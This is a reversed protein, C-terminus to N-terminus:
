YVSETGTSGTITENNGALMLDESYFHGSIFVFNTPESPAVSYEIYVFQGQKYVKVDKYAVIVKEDNVKKELITVVTNYITQLLGIPTKRGVLMPEVANRIDKNIHDAIVGVARETRLVDSEQSTTLDQVCKVSSTGTANEAICFQFTVVGAALLTPIDNQPDIERELKSMRFADRTATEGDPLFACRGAFQAALIYSPYLELQNEENLDYFGPYIFQCRDDALARAKQAAENVSLGVQAGCMMRREKGFTTSSMSTVHEQCETILFDDSTLPVVYQIPYVSLMDYFKVWSNPVKGATGGSLSVFPTNEITGMEANYITGVQILESGNELAVKINALTDTVNFEELISQKMVYTLDNVTCTQNCYNSYSVSYNEYGQLHRVLGRISKFTNANLDIDLDVIAASESEGIYTQLKIANGLGDTIISIAAYKQDGTYKISFAAGLNDFTEYSDTNADFVTLKKTNKVTGNEIKVQIKNADRGWDKSLIEWKPSLETVACYLPVLFVDGPNFTGETFNLTVGTEPIQFGSKTVKIDEESLYVIKDKNESALGYNFLVTDDEEASIIEVKYTVNQKGTYTGSATITGTTSDSVSAIIDGIAAEIESTFNMVRRAQKAQNVRICAIIDAGGLELGDKTESVPNWAKTAAKLLEGGKLVKKAASPENFFMVTNPEGGLSEGILAIIKSDSNSLKSYTMSSDFTSYAGPIVFTKGNFTVGTNAM